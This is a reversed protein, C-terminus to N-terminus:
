VHPYQDTTSKCTDIKYPLKSPCDLIRICERRTKDSVITTSQYMHVAFTLFLRVLSQQRELKTNRLDALFADVM